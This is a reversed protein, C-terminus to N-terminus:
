KAKVTQKLVDIFLKNHPNLRTIKPTSTKLKWAKTNQIALFIDAVDKM